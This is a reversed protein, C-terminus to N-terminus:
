NGDCLLLDGVHLMYAAVWRHDSIRYFLQTPTCEIPRSLCTDFFLCCYCNAESFGVAVIQKKLWCHGKTDYSTVYQKKNRKVYGAAQKISWYHVGDGIKILTSESFGHPQIATFFIIALLLWLTIFSYLYRIFVMHYGKDLM